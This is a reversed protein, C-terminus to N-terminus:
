VMDVVWQPPNLKSASSVRPQILRTGLGESRGSLAVIERVRQGAALAFM